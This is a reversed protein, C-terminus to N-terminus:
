ASATSADSASGNPAAWIAISTEQRAPQNACPLLIRVTTGRGLASTVKIAGGHNRVITQVVALGLGRGASKTTYFPDFLKAQVEKSMGCGTDAVELQLYDGAPLNARGDTAM